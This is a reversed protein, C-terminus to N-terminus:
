ARYEDFRTSEKVAADRWRFYQAANAPDVVERDRLTGEATFNLLVVTTEDFIWFDQTPLDSERGTLDLIRYDEGAEVNGAIVWEFLFRTYDTFPRRVAKLRQMTKGAALNARVTEHWGANFDAPKEAGSLFLNVEEEEAPMRYTQHAEMRFASREFSRFLNGLEERTLLPM